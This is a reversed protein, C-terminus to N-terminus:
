SRGSAKVCFALEPYYQKKPFEDIMKLYCDFNDRSRFKPDFQQM